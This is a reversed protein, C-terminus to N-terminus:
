IPAFSCICLHFVVVKHALKSSLYIKLRQKEADQSLLNKTKQTKVAIVTAKLKNTHVPTM